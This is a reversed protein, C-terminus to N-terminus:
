RTWSDITYNQEFTGTHSDNSMITQGISVTGVHGHRMANGPKNYGIPSIIM